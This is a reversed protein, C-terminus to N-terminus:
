EESRRGVEVRMREYFSLRSIKCKGVIGSKKKKMMMM